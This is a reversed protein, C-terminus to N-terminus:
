VLESRFGAAMVDGRRQGVLSFYAAWLFPIFIAGETFDVEETNLRTDQFVHLTNPLPSNNQLAQGMSSVPLDDQFLLPLM